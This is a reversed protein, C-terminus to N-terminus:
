AIFKRLVVGKRQDRLFRMSFARAVLNVRAVGCRLSPCTPLLGVTRRRTM